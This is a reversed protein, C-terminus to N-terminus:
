KGKLRDLLGGLGKKVEDEVKEQVADSQLLAAPDLKLKVAPAKTPGTIGFDLGIRGQDDRLADALFTMDGLDPTYGAPLRVALDMALTGDLGIWGGGTWDTDKGDIKLGTIIVKGERVAFHKQAASYKVRLLDQRDGLYQRVGALSERLDIVGDSGTLDGEITLSTRIAEPDALDCAGRADASLNGTWFDAFDTLYPKMIVSAPAETVKVDWTAHGGPDAAYDLRAKGRVRGSGLRADLRPVDIVRNRLTGEVNVQHYPTKLFRLERVRAELDLALDPPILEGVLPRAPEAAWATGVLSFGARAQGSASAKAVEALADLDLVPLSLDVRMPGRPSEPSVEAVVDGVLGPHQVGGFELRSKGTPSRLDSTLSLERVRLPEGLQASTVTLGGGTVTLEARGDLGDDYAAAWATTDSLAPARKLAVDLVVDLRGDLDPLPAAGPDRPPLMPEIAAMLPALDVNGRLDARVPGAAPPLVFEARGDATLGPYSAGAITVNTRGTAIHLDSSVTVGALNLTEGLRPDSVTVPGTSAEFVVTGDFGKQWREQWVVADSVPPASALDASLAIDVTGTLAPMPPADDARPPLYPAFDDLVRALDVKGTLDARLPGGAPSTTLTVTGGLQVSEGGELGLDGLRMTTGDSTGRATVTLGPLSLEDIEFVAVDATPPAGLRGRLRLDTLPPPPREGFGALEIAAVRADLELVVDGAEDDPPVDVGGMRQLRAMLIGLQPAELDQQWGRVTVARGSEEERWILEGDRVAVAALALGVGPDVQASPAGATGSAANSSQEVPRTVLELRPEILSVQGLEVQKRILPWLALDVDLRTLTLSGTVLPGPDQGAGRLGDGTVALTSEGLVLRLRPLIKLSVDGLSVEGGTQERIQSEAMERLKDRPVLLPVLVAVLVLLALVGGLVGLAVRVRRRAM